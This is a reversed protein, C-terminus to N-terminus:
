NISIPISYNSSVARIVNRLLAIADRSGNERAALTDAMPTYDDAAPSAWTLDTIRTIVAQCALNVIHPFCSLSIM